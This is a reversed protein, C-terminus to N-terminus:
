LIVLDIYSSCSHCFTRTYFGCDTHMVVNTHLVVSCCLEVIVGFDCHLVVCQYIIIIVIVVFDYHLM